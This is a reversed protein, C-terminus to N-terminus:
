QMEAMFNNGIETADIWEIETEKGDKFSQHIIRLCETIKKLKRTTM